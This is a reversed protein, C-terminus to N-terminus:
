RFVTHLVQSEPLGDLWVSKKVRKSETLVAGLMLLTHKEKIKTMGGVQGM